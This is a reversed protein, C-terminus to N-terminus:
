PGDHYLIECLRGLVRSERTPTVGRPLPVDNVFMALFLTRGSATTMTGALAKSRLLPRDNLLDFYYLTGTKARVKGRAPSDAAVADALTGDVGLVPLADRFVAYDSRKSMGQLLQVTARPTVSDAPSAGAGGAFAVARTDVGLAALFQGELRLGDTLTRKNHQVAMWLPLTSAYLNHSVKLTVKLTESFPPSTFLAVRRDAAYSERAPLDAQQAQLAGARVAVGQQRLVETFVTRAFAAPDEVPYIRLIPRSGQAIQGRVVFRQPGTVVLDVVTPRDAGVTTVQSEMQVFGTEPRLTVIAQEGAREAPRVLVDVVNDNVMIPTLIDPGSGSGQSRPFLRDDVLVEGELRHIGAAQVQRALSRLGALPDTSTLTSKSTSSNAYTHDDDTYALRGSTDTRGGLTPDGSAVLILDGHLRGDIVPSTRYVPTEFRFNAGLAALAAAGSFLKATSGPLFLQDPHHAYVTQGTEADVVLIGWRGERYDPGNIVEEIRPALEEAAVAPGVLGLLLLCVLFLARRGRRLHM